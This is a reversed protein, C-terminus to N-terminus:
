GWGGGFDYSNSLGGGEMGGDTAASGGFMSGGWSTNGGPGGGYFSGGGTNTPQMKMMGGSLSGMLTGLSSGAASTNALAANLDGMRMQNETDLRHNEAADDRQGIAAPSILTAGVDPNVPSFEQSMGLAQSNLGQATGMATMRAKAVKLKQANDAMSSGEFGGHIAAYANARAIADETGPALGGQSRDYALQSIAKTNAGANPDAALIDKEIGANDLDAASGLMNGVAPLNGAQGLFEQQWDEPTKYNPKAIKFREYAKKEKAASIYGGATALAAGVINDWGMM